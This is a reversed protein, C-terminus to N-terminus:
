KKDGQDSKIAPVQFPLSISARPGAQVWPPPSSSSQEACDRPAFRRLWQCVRAPTFTDQRHGPAILWGCAPGSASYSSSSASACRGAARNLSACALGAPPISLSRVCGSFSMTDLFAPALARLCVGSTCPLALFGAPPSSRCANDADAIWAPPDTGAEGCTCDAKLSIRALGDGFTDTSAWCIM